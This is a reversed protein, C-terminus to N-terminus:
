AEEPEGFYEIYKEVDHEGLYEKAQEDTIPVIDNTSYAKFFSGKKTRYLWRKGEEETYVLESKDTDYLKGNVVKRMM